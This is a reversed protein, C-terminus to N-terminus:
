ACILLSLSGGLWAVSRMTLPDGKMTSIAVTSVFSLLCVHRTERSEEGTAETPM